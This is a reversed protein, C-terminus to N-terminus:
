SNNRRGRRRLRELKEAIRNRAQETDGADLEAWRLIDEEFRVQLRSGPTAGPPLRDVPVIREEEAEGVLLVAFAGDVIRDLVAREQQQEM